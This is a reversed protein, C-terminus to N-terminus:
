GRQIVARIRRGIALVEDPRIGYLERAGIGTLRRYYWAGAAASVTYALTSALAAGLIGWRPILLFDLAVTVLLSIWSALAPYRAYGRGLMESFIVKSQGLVLMGPLLLLLAPYGATFAVGFLLRMIPYGLLGLLLGGTATILVTLRSLRITREEVAILAGQSVDPFLVADISNPLYQLLEALSVAVAYLGAAYAGQFCFVLLADLRYNLSTALNRGYWVSGFKLLGGMLDTRMRPPGSPLRSLLWLAAAIGLLGGSVQAVVAGAVGFRVMGVLTVLGCVVGAKELVWIGSVEPMRQQGILACTLSGEVLGIPVGLLAIFMVHLPITPFLHQHCTTLIYAAAPLVLLCVLGYLVMMTAVGEKWNAQGAAITRIVAARLGLETLLSLVGAIIIATTLEGKGGPGLLRATLIGALTGLLLMGGQGAFTLAIAKGM